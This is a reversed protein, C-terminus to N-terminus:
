PANEKIFKQKRRLRNVFFVAASQKKEFENFIKNIPGM